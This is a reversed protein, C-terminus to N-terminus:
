PGVRGLNEKLIRAGRSDGTTDIYATAAEYWARAQAADGLKECAVGLNNLLAGLRVSDAPLRRALEYYAVASDAFGRAQFLYGCSFAALGLSLPPCSDGKALVRRFEALARDPSATQHYCFGLYCGLAAAAEPSASRLLRRLSAIAEPWNRDAVLSDVVRLRARAPEPLADLGATDPEIDGLMRTLSVLDQNASALAPVPPVEATTRSLTRALFYLAALVAVGIVVWLWTGPLQRRRRGPQERKRHKTM